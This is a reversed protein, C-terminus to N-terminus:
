IPFRYKLRTISMNKRPEINRHQIYNKLNQFIVFTAELGLPTNAKPKVSLHRNMAFIPRFNM